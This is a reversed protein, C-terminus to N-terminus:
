EFRAVPIFRDCHGPDDTVIRGDVEVWAHAGFPYHEVGVVLVAPLGYVVRLLHHGVLAREKCAVPFLLQAAAATRITEDVSAIVADVQEPAVPQTASAPQRWRQLSSAWGDLRLSWWARRLLRGALRVTVPGRVHCPGALCRPLWRRGAATSAQGQQLLKRKQLSLLLAELDTRVLAEAVGYVGAVETAADDAGSDLTLTLLQSAIPGLGFFRGRNLDLVRLVDDQRALYVGAVLRWSHSLSDTQM